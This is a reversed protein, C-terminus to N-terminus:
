FFLDSVSGFLINELKLDRHIVPPSAEHMPIVAQLLMGFYRAVEDQSLPRHSSSRTKLRDLLHGGPCHELLLLAEPMGGNRGSTDSALLKVVYDGKFQQLM